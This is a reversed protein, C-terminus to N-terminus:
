DQHRLTAISIRGKRILRIWLGNYNKIRHLLVFIIISIRITKDIMADIEDILGQHYYNLCLSDVEIIVDGYNVDFM